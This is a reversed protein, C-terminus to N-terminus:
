FIFALNLRQKYCSARRLATPICHHCVFCYLFEYIAISYFTLSIVVNILICFLLNIIITKNTINRNSMGNIAM